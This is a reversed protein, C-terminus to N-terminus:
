RSTIRNSIAQSYRVWANPELWVLGEHVTTIKQTEPDYVYMGCSTITFIPVHFRDAILIDPSSPKPDSENPHTHVIAYIAQNWKLSFHKSENTHRGQVARISGDRMLFILVIAEEFVIGHKARDWARLFERVNREDIRSLVIDARSQKTEIMKRSHDEVVQCDALNANLCLVVVGAASSLALKM